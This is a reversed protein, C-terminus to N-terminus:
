WKITGGINTAHLTGDRVDLTLSGIKVKAGDHTELVSPQPLTLQQSVDTWIASNSTLKRYDPSDITEVVFKGSASFDKTQSNVSLHDAQVSLYPRGERYIVGHHVGSLLLEQENTDSTISDYDLKWAHSDSREAQVTGKGFRISANQSVPPADNGATIVGYTVYALLAIGLVWLIVKRSV